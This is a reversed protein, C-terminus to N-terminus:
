LGSGHIVLGGEVSHPFITCQYVQGQWPSPYPASVSSSLNTHLKSFVLCRGFILTSKGQPGVVAGSSIYVKVAATRIAMRCPFHTSGNHCIQIGSHWTAMSDAVAIEAISHRCM